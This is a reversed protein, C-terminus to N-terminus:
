TTSTANGIGARRTVDGTPRTGGARVVRFAPQRTGRGLLDGWLADLGGFREVADVRRHDPGSFSRLARFEAEDGILDALGAADPHPRASGALAGRPEPTPETRTATPATRETPTAATGDADGRETPETLTVEGDTGDSDPRTTGDADAAVTAALGDDAPQENIDDDSISM